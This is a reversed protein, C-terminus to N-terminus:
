RFDLANPECNTLLKVLLICRVRLFIITFKQCMIILICYKSAYLCFVCRLKVYKNIRFIVGRCLQLIFSFLDTNNRCTSHTINTLDRSRTACLVQQSKYDKDGNLPLKRHSFTLYRPRIKLEPCVNILNEHPYRARTIRCVDGTGIDRRPRQLRDRGHTCAKNM